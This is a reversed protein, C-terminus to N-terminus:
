SSFASGTTRPGAPMNAVAPTGSLPRGPLGRLELRAAFGALEGEAPLILLMRVAPSLYPLEVAQYGPGEAYASAVTQKMMRVTRTGAPARFPADVTDELEFQSLWNAKRM